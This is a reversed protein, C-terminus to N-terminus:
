VCGNLTWFFFQGNIVVINKISIVMLEKQSISQEVVVFFIIYIKQLHWKDSIRNFLAQGKFTSYYLKHLKLHWLSPSFYVKFVLNYKHSTSSDKFIMLASWPFAVFDYFIPVKFASLHKLSMSHWPVQCPDWWPPNQMDSIHSSSMKVGASSVSYSYLPLSSSSSSCSMSFGPVDWMLHQANYQIHPHPYILCVSENMWGDRYLEMMLMGPSDVRLRSKRRSCSALLSRDSARRLCCSSCCCFSPCLCWSSASLCFRMSSCFSCLRWNSSTRWRAHTKKKQTHTCAVTHKGYGGLNVGATTEHCLKLQESSM